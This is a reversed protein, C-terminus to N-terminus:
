LHEKASAVLLGLVLAALTALVGMSLKVVEKSDSSLQGEPLIRQLFSGLMIGGLALAFTLLGIAVPAM